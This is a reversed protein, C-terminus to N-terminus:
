PETGWRLSVAAQGSNDGAWSVVATVYAKRELVSLLDEDQLAVRILRVADPDNCRLQLHRCIPREIQWRSFEVDHTILVAGVQDAYIAHDVDQGQSRGAQPITWADHGAGRLVSVCRADVDEDLM